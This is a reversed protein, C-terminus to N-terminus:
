YISLISKINFRRPPPSAIEVMFSILSESFPYYSSHETENLMFKIETVPCIFSHILLTVLQGPLENHRRKTNHTLERIKDLINKENKDNIVLLVVKNASFLESKIDYMEGNFFLEHSNIRNKRFESKTIILKQFGSQM